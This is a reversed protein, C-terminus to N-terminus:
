LLFYKEFESNSNLKFISDDPIKNQYNLRQEMLVELFNKKKIFKYKNTTNKDEEEENIIDLKNNLKILNQKKYSSTFSRKGRLVNYFEDKNKYNNNIINTRDYYKIVKNNKLNNNEQNNINNFNYPNNLENINNYNYNQDKNDINNVYINNRKTNNEINNNINLLDDNEQRKIIQRKIFDLDNQLKTLKDNYRKEIDLNNRSNNQELLNKSSLYISNKNNFEPLKIKNNYHEEKNSFNNIDQKDNSNTNKIINIKQIKKFSKDRLLNNNNNISNNDFTNNKEFSKNKKLKRKNLYKKESERTQSVILPLKIMANNNNIKNNYREKDENKNQENIKFLKIPNDTSKNIKKFNNIENNRENSNIKIININNNRNTNNNQLKMSVSLNKLQPVFDRNKNFEEKVISAVYRYDNDFTNKKKIKVNINKQKPKNGIISNHLNNMLGMHGEKGVIETRGRFKKLFEDNDM